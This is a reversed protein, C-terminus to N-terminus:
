DCRTGQHRLCTRIRCDYHHTYLNPIEEVSACTTLGENLLLTPLLINPISHLSLGAHYFFKLIRNYSTKGHKDGKDNKLQDLLGAQRLQFEISAADSSASDEMFDDCDDDFGAAIASQLQDHQNSDASAQAFDDCQIVIAASAAAATASASAAAAEAAYTDADACAAAPLAIPLLAAAPVAASTKAISLSLGM